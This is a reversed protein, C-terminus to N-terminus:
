RRAVEARSRRRLQRLSLAHLLISGPVQMELWPTSESARLWIRISALKIFALYNAAPRDYLGCHGTAADSIGQISKRKRRWIPCPRVQKQSSGTAISGVSVHSTFLKQPQNNAM